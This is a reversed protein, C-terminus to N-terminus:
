QPRASIEIRDVLDDQNAILRGKVEELPMWSFNFWTPPATGDHLEAHTWTEEVPGDCTLHFFGRDHLEQRGFPTFDFVNRGLSKVVRLGNLGCEEHAERLAAESDSEGDRVTGAPVQLGAEPVDRHIFVALRGDVVIYALVKRVTKM